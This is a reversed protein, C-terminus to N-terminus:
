IVKMRQIKTELKGNYDSHKVTFKVKVFDETKDHIRIPSGGMYKFIKDDRSQYTVIFTTGFSGDFHFRGIEKLELEIKEGDNFHHGGGNDLFRQKKIEDIRFQCLYQGEFEFLEGLEVLRNRANLRREESKEDKMARDLQWIDSCESFKQAELKGFAFCDKPIMEERCDKVTTFSNESKLNLDIEYGIGFREKMKKEAEEFTFSLNQAYVYNVIIEYRQFIPVSVYWLTYYKETFGMTPIQGGNQKKMEFALEKSLTIM